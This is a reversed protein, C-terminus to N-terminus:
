ISLIYTWPPIDAARAIDEMSCRRRITPWFSFRPRAGIRQDIEKERCDCPDINPVIRCHPPQLSVLATPPAQPHDLRCTSATPAVIAAFPPPTTIAPPLHLHIRQLRGSRDCLLGARGIDERRM